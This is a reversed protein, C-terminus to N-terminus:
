GVRFLSAPHVALSTLHVKAVCFHRATTPQRVNALKPVTHVDWLEYTSTRDHTPGASGITVHPYFPTTLSPSTLGVELLCAEFHNRIRVLAETKMLAWWFVRTVDRPDLAGLSEWTSISDRYLFAGGFGLVELSDFHFAWDRTLVEGLRAVSDPLMTGLFGFTLHLEPRPILGYQRCIVAQEDLVPLDGQIAAAFYVNDFRSDPM